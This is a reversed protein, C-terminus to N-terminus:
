EEFRVSDAGYVDKVRAQYSVFALCFIHKFLKVIGFIHLKEVSGRLMLEADLLEM